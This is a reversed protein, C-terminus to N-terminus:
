YQRGTNLPNKLDIWFIKIEELDDTKGNENADHRAYVFMRDNGHDYQSSMVSYNKPVLSTQQEGDLNFYYFRRLDHLNIYGDNNTDEDYASVLYYDRKVPVNNLTDSEFAPFYLTRMLIPKKFLKKHKESATDHLSVNVINYGYLAELGPM